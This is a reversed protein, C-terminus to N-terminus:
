GIKTELRATKAGIVLTEPNKEGGNLPGLVIWFGLGKFAKGGM